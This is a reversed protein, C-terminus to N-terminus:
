HSVLAGAQTCKYDCKDCLVNKVKDHAQKKHMALNSQMVEVGCEDCRVRPNDEHATQIHRQLNMKSGYSKECAPCKWQTEDQKHIAYIHHKVM